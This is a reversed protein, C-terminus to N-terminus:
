FIEGFFNKQSFRFVSPLFGQWFIQFSAILQNDEAGALQLLFRSLFARNIPNDECQLPNLSLGEEEGLDIFKGGVSETFVKTGRLRDFIYAKLHRHRLAGGILHQFFTTKGSGSPPGANLFLDKPAM